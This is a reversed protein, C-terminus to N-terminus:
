CCMMKTSETQCHFCRHTDEPEAAGKTGKKGTKGTKGKTGGAKNTPEM